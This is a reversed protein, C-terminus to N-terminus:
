TQLLSPSIVNATTTGQWARLRGCCVRQKGGPYFNMNEVRLADAAYSCNNSANDFAFVAQCGPFAANSIPTTCRTSPAASAVRGTDNNIVRIEKKTSIQDRVIM